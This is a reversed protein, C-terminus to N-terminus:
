NLHTFLQSRTKMTCLDKVSLGFCRFTILCKMVFVEKEGWSSLMLTFIASLYRQYHNYSFRYQIAAAHPGGSNSFWTGGAEETWSPFSLLMESNESQLKKSCQRYICAKSLLQTVCCQVTSLSKLHLRLGWSRFGSKCKSGKIKNSKM